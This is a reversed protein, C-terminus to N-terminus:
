ICKNELKFFIHFLLIFLCLFFIKWFIIPPDLKQSAAQLQIWSIYYYLSSCQGIQQRWLFCSHLSLFLSITLLLFFPLPVKQRRGWIYADQTFCIPLLQYLVCFYSAATLVPEGFGPLQFSSFHLRIQHINIEAWSAPPNLIQCLCRSNMSGVQRTCGTWTLPQPLITHAINEAM